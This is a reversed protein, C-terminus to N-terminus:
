LFKVMILEDRYTGDKLKFARPQVGYKEFGFKEYLHIARPNDEFVGLEMQEFGNEKAQAIATEMMASGLGLECYDALISMGFYARHRYKMLERLKTVGADGIIKGDLYATVLFSQTDEQLSKIGERAKEVNLRGEEPYRAMFYTEGSTRYRHECIAEADGATASKLIVQLGNKLTIEKEKILM